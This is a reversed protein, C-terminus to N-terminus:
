HILIKKTLVNTGSYIQVFYVGAAIDGVPLIVNTSHPNMQLITKGLVDTLVIKTAIEETTISLSETSPNPSIAISPQPDNMRVGVTNQGMRHVYIDDSGKTTVNTITSSPDFDVTSTFYGTTYVVNAAAAIGYGKTGGLQVAWAFNGAKDLKSVFIQDRILAPNAPFSSTLNYVGAGPDFDATGAFFGTTYVSGAADIALAHAFDDLTGGMNKAWVFNGASATLKSVFIDGVGATVLNFTSAGPDFDATDFFYGTSYVSGSADVAIATGVDNATGGMQKAWRFNGAADLSNVFIEGAGLSTLNVTAAGPDFDATSSFHGTAYVNGAADLALANGIDNTSGGMRKAWLFNGWGNLKSIFIDFSGSSTLTQTAADPDFDATTSFYGTTYVNDEADAVIARAEENSTGGMNKAWVLKGAADLKLVFIDNGGSSTLTQVAASPDFDVTGSFYGTIYVDGSVSLTIGNGADATSGGIRVAWVLNGSSNLKTVFIDSGGASTLNSTGAGPDFDATGNFYGTSYVNGAADVALANGVDANTGGFSKVWDLRPAQAKVVIASIVIICLTLILTRMPHNNHAQHLQKHRADFYSRTPEGVFEPFNGVNVFFYDKCM